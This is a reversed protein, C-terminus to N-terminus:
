LLRIYLAIELMIAEKEVHMVFKKLAMGLQLMGAKDEPHLDLIEILLHLELVVAM